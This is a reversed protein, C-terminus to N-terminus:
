EQVDTLHIRKASYGTSLILVGNPTLSFTRTLHWSRAMKKRNNRRLDLARLFWAYPLGFLHRACPYHIVLFIRPMFIRALVLRIRGLFTATKFKLLTTEGMRAQVTPLDFIIHFAQSLRETDADSLSTRLAAPPKIEFLESVLSLVFPTARGTKWRIAATSLAEATLLSGSANLYLAIDLYGRLPMAFLHHLIHQVLHSILDAPALIKVPHGHLSASATNAWVTEIDPVPCGSVMQSEVHWHLEVCLPHSPHRYPQDCCYVNHLTEINTVYGLALFCAHCADRDDSRILLDLDSMSRQAPDDYVTESLWAGKLPIVDIHEAACAALIEAFQKRRRTSHPLAALFGARWAAPASDAAVPAKLSFLSPVHAALWPYLYTDVGQERAQRYLATWDASTLDSDPPRRNVAGRLCVILTQYAPPIPIAPSPKV